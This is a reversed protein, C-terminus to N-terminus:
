ILVHKATIATIRVWITLQDTSSTLESRNVSFAQAEERFKTLAVIKVRVWLGEEIESNQSDSSMSRIVFM